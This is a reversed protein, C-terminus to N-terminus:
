LGANDDEKDESRVILNDTDRYCCGSGSISNVADTYKDGRGYISNLTMIIQQQRIMEADIIELVDDTLGLIERLRDDQSIIGRLWIQHKLEAVAKRVLSLGHLGEPINLKDHIEM